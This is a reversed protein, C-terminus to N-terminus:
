IMKCERITGKSSSAQMKCHRFQHCAMIAQGSHWSQGAHLDHIDSYIAIMHNLYHLMASHPWMAAPTPICGSGVELFPRMRTLGLSRCVALYGCVEEPESGTILDGPSVVYIKLLWSKVECSWRRQKVGLYLFFSSFMMRLSNVEVLKVIISPKQICLYKLNEHDSLVQSIRRSLSVLSSYKRYHSVIFIGRCTNM